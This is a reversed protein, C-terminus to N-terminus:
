PDLSKQLDKEHQVSTDDLTKQVAQELQKASAADAPPKIGASKMQKQFEVVQQKQSRMWLYAIALVILLSLLLEIAGFGGSNSKM